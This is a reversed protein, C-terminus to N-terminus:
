HRFHRLGTFVMALGLENCAAIVAEDRMAGGPQIVATVGAAAATRVGDDFPFFADSAMVSASARTGAFRVAQEVASIRSVQGAGIGTTVGDQALVIANSRAHKCVAWAFRLDRWERESPERRTVVRLQAEDLLADDYTQLLLGGRLRRLDGLGARAPERVRLLRLNKKRALVALAAPEFDPALVIELFTQSLAEALDATVSGSLAVIGGYISVPDAAHAKRYADLLTEAVAVGCPNAHKVAVAAPGPLDTLLAWAAEADLYNNFSMAKGQLVEADVVPGREEGLRWLSARQHPNEGYRLDALKYLALALEEGPEDGLYRAIAADYAATHAFAKAALRRRFPEDASGEALRTLVEPYDKPDVVAIVAPFNKAAARLLAPGGIDIEELAADLGVGAAVAQRFPYLNVAVLDIPAIDHEALEALHQADRKALIGGYLRPHLTKVRGSLIEPFGTVDSAQRVTLGAEVLARYTGGTSVLDFGLRLLGAAFATLGTKDSVSLLARPM